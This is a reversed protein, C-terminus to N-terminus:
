NFPVNETDHMETIKEKVKDWSGILFEVLEKSFDSTSESVSEIWGKSQALMLMDTEDINDAAMMTKLKDYITPEPKVEGVVHAIEGFDMPVMDPLGFRNKADWCNHHTTYIVREGGKAKVKGDNTKVAYTKYNCFLVMDAWEKVLPATKKQLKLEWRDYAGMEDPQEFKRMMAHATLVVHIGAKIVGDLEDLLPKFTEALKVYGKGFGYDEISNVRDKKLMDKICIMEAWDTTDLILTKCPREKAVWKVEEIIDDWSQPTPLRAVDMQKTSGETDIFIPEPFKSALTSKGIGEPGYILVKVAGQQIGRTIQM